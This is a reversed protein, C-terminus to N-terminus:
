LYLQSGLQSFRSLIQTLAHAPSSTKSILFRSFSPFPSSSSSLKHSGGVANIGHRMACLLLALGALRLEEAASWPWGIALGFDCM